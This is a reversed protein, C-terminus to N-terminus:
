LGQVFDRLEAFELCRQACLSMDLIQALAKNDNTTYTTKGNKSSLAKLKGKPDDIM